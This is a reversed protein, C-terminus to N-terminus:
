WADGPRDHCAIPSTLDVDIGWRLVMLGDDEDETRVAVGDRLVYAPGRWREWGLREYFGHAGTSLAGLEFRAPLQAQLALMVRRGLGQGQHSPLTAVAEVYATELPRGAVLLTRPVASAHALVDDGEVVLAHVGGFAHDADEATFGDAFAAAWLRGLAEVARPSLADSSAVVLASM